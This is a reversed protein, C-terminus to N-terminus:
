SSSPSPRGRNRAKQQEEKSEEEEAKRRRSNKWSIIEKKSKAVIHGFGAFVTGKKGIRCYIDM